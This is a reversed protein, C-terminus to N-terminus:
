VRYTSCVTLNGFYWDHAAMDFNLFDGTSEVGEHSNIGEIVKVDSTNVPKGTPKDIWYEPSPQSFDLHLLGLLPIYPPAKPVWDDDHTVRYTRNSQETIYEALSYDGAKLSGFTYLDLDYGANRLVTAGLTAVGGGLSHGVVTLTYDPYTATVNEISPLVEDAVTSWYQWYGKHAYCDKCVDDVKVPGINIDALGDDRSATGRFALIILNNTKDVALYGTPDNANHHQFTNITLTEAKEILDCNGFDCTLKRGTANINQDCYTVAAYQSFRTFNDLLEPSIEQRVPQIAFAASGLSLLLTCLKVISRM